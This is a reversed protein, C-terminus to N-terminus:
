KPAGANEVAERLNLTVITVGPEERSERLKFGLARCMQLMPQNESLVQGEIHDLGLSRGYDIMLGMLKWGLGQGKVQPGLLIAYEGDTRDANMMLRVGGLLEGTDAKIAAMAFARAYDIQTLRALFAHSFAKVPAFFRLRLDNQPVTEFFARYMDEDEPRVPRVLVVTGDKLRLTQELDKPYPAVAFRRNPEGPPQRPDPEVRIRADVVMVGLEDALLPNLDLERVEPVDAVLQALKVLTLAVADVDARPVDRYHELIAAVRTRRIMDHALSLDLPPLAVARDDIIEVAKGGRGFVIVPGFTKDDAVGAILERAHPRKIMPHVTVGEISAEPLERGIRAIMERAAEAAADPTRLDLAVGGIDSKHAIDRSVIKVVCAGARAIFLRALEGAEEATRAFRAPAVPIDYADLLMTMEVPALWRHGRDIAQRVVSRAREVDPEFDTPLNPPASMMFERAENWRVMHMFGRVGGTQYHPIRADEFIKDTEASAGFWVAFVPKPNVTRKRAEKVSDVVAQAAETSKSLANPAHMAMVADTTKDALAAGITAKFREPDADGDLDLPNERRTGPPLVADLKEWTTAEMPALAGRLDHLRDAALRGLGGGNSIIALRRGPFPKIRGLAEAADFLEDIDAVRLLGARRFAADYVTDPGAMNAVSSGGRPGRKHRGSKAVIVPKVRAAARAASMFKQPDELRDIYLLIARTATDLAFYDLLDGFDVDAMEGASVLGSFGVHRTHAWAVMAAGIAGSQSLLALDGPPAQQASLSANLGAAPIMVGLCDPGFIRMRGRRGIRVLGQTVQGHWGAPDRTMVLAGPIDLKEAEEAQALAHEPPAALVVLDPAKALSSLSPLCPRGDLEQYRPNVLAIEGKFGAGIVNQYLALGTSGARPSAGVLAISKPSLIRELARVGM